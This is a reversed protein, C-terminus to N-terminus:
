YAADAADDDDYYCCQVQVPMCLMVPPWLLSAQDWLMHLSDCFESRNTQSDPFLKLDNWDQSLPDPVKMGGLSPHFMHILYRGMAGQPCLITLFNRIAAKFHPKDKISKGVHEMLGLIFCESPGALYWLFSLRNQLGALLLEHQCRM